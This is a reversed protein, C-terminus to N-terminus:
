INDGALAQEWDTITRNVFSLCCERAKKRRRQREQTPLASIERIKSVLGSGTKIIELGPALEPWDVVGCKDSVIVMRERAMAEAAVTGFSEMKSPLVLIRCRYDLISTLSKRDVWGVYELNSLRDAAKQVYESLPGTGAIIFSIKPLETAADIIQRINKEPALRGVFLVPGADEGPIKVPPALLVPDLPTGILRVRSAGSAEAMRVMDKGNTFVLRARRMFFRDLSQLFFSSVAGAVRNWYLGTLQDYRTHYGYCFDTGTRRAMILGLIGYPGPTASIIVHPRLNRIKRVTQKIGPLCLRQSRDGPMPVSFNLRGPQVEQEPCILETSEIRPALHKLLDCYYAGVGNRYPFADSFVALRLQEPKISIKRKIQKNMAAKYFM